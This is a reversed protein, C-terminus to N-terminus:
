SNMKLLTRMGEVFYALYFLRSSSQFVAFQSKLRRKLQRRRGRMKLDIIKDFNANRM